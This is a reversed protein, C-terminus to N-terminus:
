QRACAVLATSRRVCCSHLSALGLMTVEELLSWGGGIGGGSLARFRGVGVCSCFSPMPGYLSPTNVSDEEVELGCADRPGGEGEGEKRGGFFLGCRTRRLWIIVRRPRPSAEHYQLHCPRSYESFPPSPSPSSLSSGGFPLLPPPRSPGPEVPPPRGAPRATGSESPLVSSLTRSFLPVSPNAGPATTRGQRGSGGEEVGQASGIGGGWEAWDLRIRLNVKGCFTCRCDVVLTLGQEALEFFLFSVFTYTAHQTIEM